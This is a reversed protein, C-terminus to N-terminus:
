CTLLIKLPATLTTKLQIGRGEKRVDIVMPWTEVPEEPCFPEYLTFNLEAKSEETEVHLKEDKVM